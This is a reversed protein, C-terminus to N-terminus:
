RDTMNPAGKAIRPPEENTTGKQRVLLIVGIEVVNVALDSSAYTDKTSTLGWDAYTYSTNTDSAGM